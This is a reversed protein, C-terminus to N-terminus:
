IREKIADLFEQENIGLEIARAVAEDKDTYTELVDLENETVQDSRTVGFHYFTKSDNYSQWYTDDIPKHILNRIMITRRDILDHTM